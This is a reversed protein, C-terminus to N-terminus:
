VFRGGFEKLAECRDSRGFFRGPIAINEIGLNLGFQTHFFRLIIGHQAGRNNGGHQFSADLFVYNRWGGLGREINASQRILIEGFKALHKGIHDVVRLHPNHGFVHGIGDGGRGYGTQLGFHEMRKSAACFSTAGSAM